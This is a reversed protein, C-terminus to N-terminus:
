LLNIDVDLATCAECACSPDESNKQFWGNLTPIRYYRLSMHSLFLQM